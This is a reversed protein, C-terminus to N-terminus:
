GVKFDEDLKEFIEPGFILKGSYPETDKNVSSDYSITVHSHYDRFDWSAGIYRFEQWRDSLVTSEFILVTAGGDFQKISRKGSPISLESTIPRLADRDIPTKSYVITVHMDDSKLTSEFGVSKAWDVLEQGNLLKRSVYLSEKNSQEALFQKFSKM